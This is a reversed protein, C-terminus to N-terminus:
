FCVKLEVVCVARIKPDVLTSGSFLAGFVVVTHCNLLRKPNPTLHSRPRDVGNHPFIAYKM